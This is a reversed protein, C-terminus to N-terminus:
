RRHREIGIRGHAADQGVVQRRRGRGVQAGLIDKIVVILLHKGITRLTKGGIRSQARLEFLASGGEGRTARLPGPRLGWECEKAPWPIAMARRHKIPCATVCINATKRRASELSSVDHCGALMFDKQKARRGQEAERQGGAGGEGIHLFIWAAEGEQSRHSCYSSLRRCSSSWHARSRAASSLCATM